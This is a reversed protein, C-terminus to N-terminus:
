EGTRSEDGRRYPRSSEVYACIGPLSASLSGASKSRSAIHALPFNPSGIFVSDNTLATYTLGREQSTATVTAGPLAAGSPDTVTGTISATVEQGWGSHCIGAVAAFLLLSRFLASFSRM